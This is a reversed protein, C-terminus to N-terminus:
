DGGAAAAPEAAPSTPREGRVANRVLTRLFESANPYGLEIARVKLRARDHRTLTFRVEVPDM